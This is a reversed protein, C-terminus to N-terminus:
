ILTFIFPCLVVGPVLGANGWSCGRWLKGPRVLTHIHKTDDPPPKVHIRRGELQCPASCHGQQFCSLRPQPHEPAYRLASDIRPSRGGVVGRQFCCGPTSEIGPGKQSGGAQRRTRIVASATYWVRSHLSRLEVALEFCRYNKSTALLNVANYGFVQM